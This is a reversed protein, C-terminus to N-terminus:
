NTRVKLQDALYVLMAKADSNRLPALARQARLTRKAIERKAGAIVGEREYIEKVKRIRERRMGNPPVPSLLLTRDKASSRELATLYLFTKKGEVIDGGITKGFTEQTGVVDLLDDQIQFALGLHGGYRCLSKQLKPSAGGIVSGIEVAASIVRATKKKIMLLYDDLSVHKRSEFEKDLGQGECVQVFADNFIDIIERLRSTKTKLLSRYAYAIMEDGALIAVNTDWKKHVTPRGRRVDARDMVDDHVLTFNHLMEIAAAAPLADKAKGGVAECGLLVLSARLRKGGASLVYRIPEYVSVPDRVVLLSKLFREIGYKHKHFSKQIHQTILSEEISPYPSTLKPPLNVHLILFSPIIILTVVSIHQV